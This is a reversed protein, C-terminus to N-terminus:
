KIQKAEQLLKFSKSNDGIRISYEDDMSILGMDVLAFEEDNLIGRLAFSTVKLLEKFSFYTNENLSSKFSFYTNETHSLM